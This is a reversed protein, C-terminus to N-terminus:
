LIVNNLIKEAQKQWNFEKIARERGQEGLKKRLDANSALKIVAERIENVNEGNIMLGNLGDIVADGVGGDKGAIVPKGKINAELYVIGFGEFDGNLNRSPMIFIDCLQYWADREEDTANKIVIINKEINFNSILFQFNNLEPGDGLIVYVLNPIKKIVEPLANIVKDIGKRKVMRAVTLLIIKNELDYKKRLQAILRPGHAASDGAGPNVVIIKKDFKHKSFEKLLMAVHSNSCIIAHADKMILKAQYKKRPTKLASAFDLGHFFVSYKLGCLKKYILAVLGLPLVHGVLIHEANNKKIARKLAKFAPLWKLFLRSKNILKDSSNDLVFINGPEPWFKVLNGYYNAIGGHFPPYELTFLLFRM